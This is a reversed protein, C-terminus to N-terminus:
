ENWTDWEDDYNIFKKKKKRPKKKAKRDKTVLPGLFYEDIDRQAKKHGPTGFEHKDREDQLIELETRTDM